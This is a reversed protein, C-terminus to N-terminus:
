GGPPRPTVPRTGSRLAAVASRAQAVQPQLSADADKWAAIFKEYWEIARPVDGTQQYLAGREAYSRVLFGPHAVRVDSSDIRAYAAIAGRPDGVRSLLEAWAFARVIGQDGSFEGDAPRRFHREIRMRARATDRRALALLADAVHWTSSTTTDVRALLQALFTTDHSALYTSLYAAGQGTTFRRLAATDGAANRAVVPVFERTIDALEAGGIEAIAWGETARALEAKSMKLNAPGNASDFPALRFLTNALRRAAVVRGGGGALIAVGAPVNNMGGLTPITDTANRLLSDYVAAAEGPRNQDVLILAKWLGATGRAGLRALADAERMAEDYRKQSYLVSVAANRARPTAPAASIWGLATAVQAAKADARFQHLATAGFMRTLTDPAATVSSDALCVIGNSNACVNLADIIHQYALTYGSDLALARQFARLARGNNGLSDAHPYDAARHHFHAEGLQYWAEVDTSDREILGSVIQRARRFNGDEYARHFEVLSRLRPPLNASHREASLVFERRRNRDGGSGMGSWGEVDRLRLYALAFGSDLAVARELYRRASDVDFRQLAATGALYARYADLSSTTQALLSPREGAPAGATGLVRSALLDFLPRPDAGLPARVIYQGLRDGSRVDHVKAEVALSDGERRIDGLVMTGVKAERAMAQAADFDIVRAETMDRRRLLSATREDDYVRMDRWHSAALGLLNMSAEELYERSAEGTRNEFPFVILSKRPDGAVRYGRPWMAFAAVAVLAVAAAALMAYRRRPVAGAVRGGTVLSDLAASMEGASAFRDKPERAMAREIVPQIGAPDKSLRLRKNSLSQSLIGQLTTGEFPPKGELMEFLVVGLAFIDTRGDLQTEGLAQEPSMYSPSGVAIGVQTLGGVAASATVARAIGFDAVVAHGQSLLINAPKIDRHVIGQRHAYDLADAVERAIRVATSPQLPGERVIRDRLSEGEVFPMVYYLMGGAEGSDYVPLINPHQLKASIEIERLFRDPGLSVALEPRLVKIAVPRGHKLDTALFVTAMGGEGIEREVRYSAALAQRLMTLSDSV